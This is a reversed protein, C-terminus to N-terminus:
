SIIEINEKTTLATFKTVAISQSCKMDIWFLCEISSSKSWIWKWIFFPISFNMSSPLGLANITLQVLISRYLCIDNIRKQIKMNKSRIRVYYIRKSGSMSKVLILCSRKSCQSSGLGFIIIDIIPPEVFKMKSWRDSAFNTLPIALTAERDPLDFWTNRKLIEEIVLISRHIIVLPYSLPRTWTTPCIISWVFILFVLIDFFYHFCKRCNLSNKLISSRFDFGSVTASAMQLHPPILFTCWSSLSLGIADLWTAILKVVNM